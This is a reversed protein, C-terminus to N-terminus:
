YQKSLLTESDEILAKLEASGTHAYFDKWAPFIFYSPNLYVYDDFRFGHAGPLLVKKGAFDIVTHNMVAQFIQESEETYTGGWKKGAKLLAWAILIDGDTANNKDELPESLIPNFKWYFLQSQPNQLSQKTWNWIRQFSQKDNAAVAFLMGYGQGESHSVSGNGTDLVRGDQMLFKAKFHIWDIDSSAHAQWSVMFCLMSTILRLISIKM